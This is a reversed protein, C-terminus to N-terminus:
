FVLDFVSSVRMLFVAKKVKRLDSMIAILLRRVKSPYALIVRPM